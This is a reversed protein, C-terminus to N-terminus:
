VGLYILYAAGAFKVASFIEVSRELLAGIGFSVAVVQAYEGIENGIVTFLAPRRGVTLARGVTFLVSPGPIAILAMALAGFALMRDAPIM